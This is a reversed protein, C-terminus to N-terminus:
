KKIISIIDKITADSHIGKHTTIDNKIIKSLSWGMPIYILDYEKIDIEPILDLTTLHSTIKIRSDELIDQPTIQKVKEM